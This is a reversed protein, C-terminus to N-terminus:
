LVATSRTINISCCSLRYRSMHSHDDVARTETTAVEAAAAAPQQADEDEDEANVCVVTSGEAEDDVKDSARPAMLSWTVEGMEGSEGDVKLETHLYIYM